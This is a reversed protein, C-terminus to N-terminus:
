RRTRRKPKPKKAKRSPARKSLKAVKAKRKKPMRRALGTALLRLGDVQRALNKVTQDLGYFGLSDIKKDLQKMVLIHADAEVELSHLRERIKRVAKVGPQDSVAATLKRLEEIVEKM